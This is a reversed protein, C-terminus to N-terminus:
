PSPLLSSLPSRDPWATLFSPLGPSHPPPLSTRDTPQRDLCPLSSTAKGVRTLQPNIPSGRTKPLVSLTDLCNPRCHASSSLLLPPHLIRRPVLTPFSLSPLTLCFPDPGAALLLTPIPHRPFTQGAPFPPRSMMRAQMCDTCRIGPPPPPPAPHLPTRPRLNSPLCTHTLSPTLRHIHSPPKALLVTPRSGRAALNHPRVPCSSRQRSIWARTM